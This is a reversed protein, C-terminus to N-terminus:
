KANKRKPKYKGKELVYDIVKRALEDIQKQRFAVYVQTVKAGIEHGLGASVMEMSAGLEIALTAWSHRSYYASIPEEIGVRRAIKRLGNRLNTGFPKYYDDAKRDFFKLLKEKGRYRNIIELMEPEVKIDYHKGTKSRDYEIRGNKIADAKLQSLDKTNIGRMMLMLAFIDACRKQSKTADANIIARIQAVTMSRKRTQPRSIHFKPFSVNVVNNDEAFNYVAQVRTVYSLITLKAKGQKKLYEIFGDIWCSDIDSVKLSDYNCYKKVVEIATEYAEKTNPKAKTAIYREANVKFLEEKDKVDSTKGKSLYEVLQKDTLTRLLGRSQLDQITVEAQSLQNNVYINLMRRQPVNKIHNTAKADWDEEKITLNIPVYLTKGNRAVALKVPFKGDSLRYRKDLRLTVKVM